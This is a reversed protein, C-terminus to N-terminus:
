AINRGGAAVEKKKTAIQISEKLLKIDHHKNFNSKESKEGINDM